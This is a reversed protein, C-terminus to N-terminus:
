GHTSSAGGIAPIPNLPGTTADIAAALDAPTRNAAVTLYPVERGLTESLAVCLQAVLLSHGGADVFDTDAGVPLDLVDAVVQLVLRLTDNAALDADASATSPASTRAAAAWATLMDRDLKGNSTLPLASVVIGTSPVAFTALHTRAHALVLGPLQDPESTPGAPQGGLASADNAVIFAVLQDAVATVACSRVAPHEAIVHEIEGLEIRHGRIKIQDDSRGIYTLAGDPRCTVHDGTHYWRRGHEDTTFRAATAAPNSAYGRAVGIGGILLEGVMGPTVDHGREDVVRTTVNPLTTGIHIDAGPTCAAVTAAVTAETPGYGNFVQRHPGAWRAVLAPHCPEGVSVVTRLAPLDATPLADLVSPTLTVVNVAHRRLLDALAPGGSRVAPPALALTGGATLTLLIECMAADWAWNAFQLVTTGPGVQFIRALEATMNLVGPHEILVGKPTGTSGSTFVAYCLPGHVTPLLVAAPPQHIELVRLGYWPDLVLQVACAATMHQLRQEPWDPDLYLTAAGARLVGLIQVLGDVSRPYCVGVVQETTVDLWALDRAVADARDTLERYTLTTGADDVVAVSQPARQAQQWIQHHVTGPMPPLPPSANM